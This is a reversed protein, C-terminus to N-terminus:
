KQKVAGSQFRLFQATPQQGSEMETSMVGKGQPVEHRIEMMKKLIFRKLKCMAGLATFARFGSHCVKGQKKTDSEGQDQVLNSKVKGM